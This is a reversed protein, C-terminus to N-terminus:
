KAGARTEPAQEVYRWRWGFATYLRAPRDCQPSGHDCRFPTQRETAKEASTNV